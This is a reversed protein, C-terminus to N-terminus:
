MSPETEDLAPKTKPFFSSNPHTKRRAQRSIKDFEEDREFERMKFTYRIFLPRRKPFPWSEIAATACQYLEPSQLENAEELFDGAKGKADVAWKVVLVGSKNLGQRLQANYCEQIEALRGRVVMLFPEQANEPQTTTSIMSQSAKQQALLNRIKATKLFGIFGLILVVSICISLVNGLKHQM